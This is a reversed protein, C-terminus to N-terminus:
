IIYKNYLIIDYSEIYKWYLKNMTKILLKLEVIKVNTWLLINYVIYYYCLLLLQMQM